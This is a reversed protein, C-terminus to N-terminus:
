LIILNRPNPPHQWINEFLMGINQCNNRWANSQQQNLAKVMIAYYNEVLIRCFESNETTNTAKSINRINRFVMKTRIIKRHVKCRCFRGARRPSCLFRMKPANIEFTQSNWFMQYPM